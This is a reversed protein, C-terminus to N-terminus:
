LPDANRRSPSPGCSAEGSSYNSEQLIKMLGRATHEAFLPPVANGIMLAARGRGGALEFRYSTPFTQLCAAERLTIARNQEPHLYRGKSPNTCGSTITPAVKDWAMRGYVDHYGDVRKHCGLQMGEPLSSRSGGDRPIARILKAVRDSRRQPYDHLADKGKRRPARLGAIATRVTCRQSSPEPLPPTGDLCGVLVLRKRRQPVGYDSVDLVDARCEYGLDELKTQLRGFRADTWLGPVNELLVARPRLAEAFRAIEFVLDNREDDHAEARNRTRHTSFGQCPPM